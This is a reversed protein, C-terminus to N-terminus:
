KKSAGKLEYTKHYCEPCMVQADRIVMHEVPILKGCVRCPIKQPHERELTQVLQRLNAM